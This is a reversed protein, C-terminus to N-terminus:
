GPLDYLSFHLCIADYFAFLCFAGATAPLLTKLFLLLYGNHNTSILTSLLAFPALMAIFLGVRAVM